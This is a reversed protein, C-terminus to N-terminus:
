VGKTASDEETSDVIFEETVLENYGDNAYSDLDVNKNDIDFFNSDGRELADAVKLSEIRDVIEEGIGSENIYLNRAFSQLNNIVEDVVDRNVGDFYRNEWGQRELWAYLEGVSALDNESKTNKPTFEATKVMKDYSGMLKDFNEGARIKEDIELSMKCLKRAQDTQLAGNINQTALMGNFLNDLYLLDEDEYNPGWDLRLKKFKEDVLEPLENEILGAEELQKFAIYYDKWALGEFQSDQFVKAYIPFVNDDNIAKLEEFKKPIFPIDIQQCLKDIFDWGWEQSILKKKLCENCLNLLGDPYLFSKMPIFNRSTKTINCCGCKKNGGQVRDTPTVIEPMITM